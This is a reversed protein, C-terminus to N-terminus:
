FVPLQPEGGLLVRGAADYLLRIAQAGFVIAHINRLAREVPNGHIFAERTSQTYLRSMTDRLIDLAYFSSAYVDAKLKLPVEAGTLTVEWLADMAQSVGARSARLAATSHAILERIHAQDRMAQGSFTSVKSSLAEIASELATGLVGCAVTPVYPAFLVGLPLRFLPRDIVLPKTPSHAFGESVFVDQVRVQNSGTGRMAAAQKWTPAIEIDTTRVLFLRADPYGQVMRPAGDEIVVGTLACWKADECGTVVPWQGSLRYGGPTPIAQGGAAGSYGFHRDPEAFLQAREKEGLSAAALGAPTSNGIYWAVAPDAASVVEMAVLMDPPPVELGGVERPAFARFFGAQGVATVVESALRARHEGEVLHERILPQLARAAAVIPHADM